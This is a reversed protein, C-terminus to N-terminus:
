TVNRIDALARLLAEQIANGVESAGSDLNTTNLSQVGTLSDININFTRIGGGSVIGEAQLRRLENNIGFDLNTTPMRQATDAAMEATAQFGEQFADGIREGAKRLRNLLDRNVPTDLTPLDFGFFDLVTRLEIFRMKLTDLLKSLNDLEQNIRLKLFEWLQRFSETLNDIAPQFFEVIEGAVEAIIQGVEKIAAWLGNIIRRFTESEQYAVIIASILGAIVTIVFLIPNAALVANLIKQVAIWVKVAGVIGFIATLMAGLGAVVPFIINSYRDTFEIAKIIGELFPAFIGKMSLGFEGVLFRAKGIATSWRGALTTAMQNTLNHFRGGPGTAREFAKRVLSASIAGQRMLDRLTRMNVGTAQSIESLPNFGANVLQLLDQGMLRGTATIQSFALTLRGLREEDGGAVDGLMRLTKTVGAADQGFALLTQANRNLAQNSFPTENAFQTLEKFLAVGREVSGTLTNFFLQTKEIEAGLSFIARVALGSAVTGLGTLANDLRDVQNEIRQFSRQVRNAIRTVRDRLSIIYTVNAM